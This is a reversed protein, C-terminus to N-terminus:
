HKSIICHVVCKLTSRNLQIENIENVAQMFTNLLTKNNHLQVNHSELGWQLRACLHRHIWNGPCQQRDTCCPTEILRFRQECIDALGCITRVPARKHGHTDKHEPFVTWVTYNNERM